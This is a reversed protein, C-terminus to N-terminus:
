KSQRNHVEHIIEYFYRNMVPVEPPFKNKVQWMLYSIIGGAYLNSLVINEIYLEKGHNKEVSLNIASLIFDFLIEVTENDADYVLNKFILINESLRCDVAKEIHEYTNNLDFDKPWLDTMWSKLLDYKDIYHTYFAARSILAEECIGKITIKKFNFSKLLSFMAKYLAKKTKIRRLDENVIDSSM